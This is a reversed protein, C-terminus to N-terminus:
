QVALMTPRQGTRQGRDWAGQVLRRSKGWDVIDAKMPWDTVVSGNTAIHAVVYTDPIVRGILIAIGEAQSQGKLFILWADGPEPREHASEEPAPEPLPFMAEPDVGAKLASVERITLHRGPGYRNKWLFGSGDAAVLVVNTAHAIADVSGVSHAAVAREHEDALSIETPIFLSTQGHRLNVVHQASCTHKLAEEAVQLRAELLRRRVTGVIVSATRKVADEIAIAPDDVNLMNPWAMLIAETTEHCAREIVEPDIPDDPHLAPHHALGEDIPIPQREAPFDTDGDSASGPM